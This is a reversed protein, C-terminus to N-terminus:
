AVQTYPQLIKALFICLFGLMLLINRATYLRNHPITAEEIKANLIKMNNLYLARAAEAQQRTMVELGEANYFMNGEKSLADALQGSREAAVLLQYNIRKIAIGTEIHKLGVFFSAALLLLAVPELLSIGCGFKLPHYNEGIYAFLAGAVGCVFYDFKESSEQANGFIQASRGSM